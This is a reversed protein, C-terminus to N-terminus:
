RPLLEQVQIRQAVLDRLPGRYITWGAPYADSGCGVVIKCFIEGTDYHRYLNVSVSGEWSQASVHIGSKKNGQRTVPGQNGKITGYFESM